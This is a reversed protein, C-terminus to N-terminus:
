NITHVIPVSIRMGLFSSSNFTYNATTVRVNGSSIFSGQLTTATSTDYEIIGTTYGAPTSSFCLWDGLITTRSQLSIGTTLLSYGTPLNMSLTASSGSPVGAFAIVINMELQPGVRRFYGTYTVNVTWSGTPTFAIWESLPLLPQPQSPIPLFSAIDGVSVIPKLINTLVGM